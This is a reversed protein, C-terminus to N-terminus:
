EGTRNLRQDEGGEGGIVDALSDVLLVVLDGRWTPGGDPLSRDRLDPKNRAWGEALAKLIDWARLEFRPENRAEIAGRM